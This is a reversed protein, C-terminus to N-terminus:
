VFREALTTYRPSAPEAAGETLHSLIGQKLLTIATIKCIPFSLSLSLSACRWSRRAPADPVSTRLRRQRPEWALSSGAWPLQVWGRCVQITRLCFSALSPVRSSGCPVGLHGWLLPSSTGFEGFLLGALTQCCAEAISDKKAQQTCM